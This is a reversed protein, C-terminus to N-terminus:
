RGAARRPWRGLRRLGAALEQTAASPLSDATGGVAALQQRLVQYAGLGAAGEGRLFHVRMLAAHSTEEQPDLAVLAQAQQLALDLDGASEALALSQQLPERQAQRLERRRTNLWVGFDDAAAVEGALLEAGPMAAELSVAGALRLGDEGEVLPVGLWQRFRLLQQRLNHRANAADPWLMAAARERRIGPELAALAVLAAARGRLAIAPGEDPQVQAAGHLRLRLAPGEPSPCSNSM